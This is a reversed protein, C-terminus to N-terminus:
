LRHTVQDTGWAAQVTVRSLQEPRPPDGPRSALVYQHRISLLSQPDAETHPLRFGWGDTSGHSHALLPSRGFGSTAAVVRLGPLPNGAEDVVRGHIYTLDPAPQSRGGEALTPGVLMLDM